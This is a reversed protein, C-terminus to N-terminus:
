FEEEFHLGCHVINFILFTMRVITDAAPGKPFFNLNFFSAMLIARIWFWPKINRPYHEHPPECGHKDQLGSSPTM